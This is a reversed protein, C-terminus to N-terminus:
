GKLVTRDKERTGVIKMHPNVIPDLYSGTIFTKGSVARSVIEGNETEELYHRQEIYKKDLLNSKLIHGVIVNDIRIPLTELDESTNVDEIFTELETMVVSAELDDIMQQDLMEQLEQTTYEAMKNRKHYNLGRKILTLGFKMM